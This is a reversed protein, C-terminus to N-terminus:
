YNDDEDNGFFLYKRNAEEFDYFTDVAYEKEPDFIIIRGDDVFCAFGFFDGKIARCDRVCNVQLERRM